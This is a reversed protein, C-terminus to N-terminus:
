PGIVACVVLPRGDYEGAPLCIDEGASASPALSVLISAAIAMAVAFRKM